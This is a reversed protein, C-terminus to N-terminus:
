VDFCLIVRDYIAGRRSLPPRFSQWSLRGLLIEVMHEASLLTGHVFFAVLDLVQIEKHSGLRVSVDLIANDDVVLEVAVLVVKGVPQKHGVIVKAVSM